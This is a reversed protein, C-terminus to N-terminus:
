IFEELPEWSALVFESGPSWRRQLGISGMGSGTAPAQAAHRCVLLIRRDSMMIPSTTKRVIVVEGYVVIDAM